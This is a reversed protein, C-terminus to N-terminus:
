AVLPDLFVVRESDQDQHTVVIHSSNRRLLVATAWFLVPALMFWLHPTAMNTTGGDPWPSIQAVWGPFWAPFVSAALSVALVLAISVPPLALVVLTTWGARMLWGSWFLRRVAARKAATSALQFRKGTRRSIIKSRM